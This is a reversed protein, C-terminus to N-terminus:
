LATVVIELRPRDSYIKKMRSEVVQKDDMWVVMNFSDIQKIINDMDPKVCPRIKGAIAEDRRKKSWSAPVPFAALMSLGVPGEIPRRGDMAKQAAYRLASEYSRTGSPTYARGTARAFRPRGKGVPEGALSIVIQDPSM